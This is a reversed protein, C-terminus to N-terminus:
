ATTKTMYKKLGDIKFYLLVTTNSVSILTIAKLPDMGLERISADITAYGLGSGGDSDDMNNIFFMTEEGKDAYEKFEHRKKIIRDLDNDLIPANNTIEINLAGWTENMRVMVKAGYNRIKKRISLLEKFSKILAYEETTYKRNENQVKNKLSIVKAEQTLIKRVHATHGKLDIQDKAFENLLNRDSLIDEVKYQNSIQGSKIKEELEERILVYKYNAKIGNKVLEDVCTLMHDTVSEVQHNSLHKEILSRIKEKARPSYLRVIGLVSM